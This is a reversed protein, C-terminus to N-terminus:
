KVVAIKGREQYGGAQLLVIYIGSGVPADNGSRGNWSVENYQGAPYTQNNVLTAIRDGLLNYITITVPATQPQIWTLKAEEKYNSNIQNHYIKLFSNPPVPTVTCTPSPTVTTQITMTPTVTLVPTSTSTPTVTPTPTPATSSQFQFVHNNQGLAYIEFRHDNNADGVTLAYLPVGTNNMVFTTWNANNKYRYVCGDGCASYVENFGDNDADSVSLSYFAGGGPTGITQGTWGANWSCIYVSGNQCAAYIESDGDNDGDGFALGNITGGCTFIAAAQWAIGNYRYQYIQNANASYLELSGDKNGDGAALAAPLCAPCGPIDTKLWSGNNNKYQCVTGNNGAAFIEPLGDNDIDAKTLCLIESAGDPGAGLDTKNWAPGSFQHVHNDYTAGYIEWYWDGNGDALLLRSYNTGLTSFIAVPSNWGYSFKKLQYISQDLNAVYLEQANDADADGVELGSCRGTETVGGASGIDSMTWVVPPAVPSLVTYAQKLISICGDDGTVEVDYTNPAAGTLDLTYLYRYISEETGVGSSIEPNGALVLRTIVPATFAAGSIDLQVTQGSLGYAPNVLSLRDPSWHQCFIKNQYDYNVTYISDNVIEIDGGYYCSSSDRTGDQWWQNGTWHKLRGNTGLIYYTGNVLKLSGNPAEMDTIWAVGNFHKIYSSGADSVNLYPVGGALTMSMKGSGNGASAGDQIWANGNWHKLYVSYYLSGSILETEIWAVYPIGNYVAIQPGGADGNANVNLTGGDQVWSTGNFHKVNVKLHGSSDNQCWAVWPTGNYVAINPFRANYSSDSIYSATITTWYGIYRSVFIKQTSTNWAEAWTAYPTGNYVVMRPRTGYDLADGAQIILDGGDQEWDSGNWHKVYIHANSEEWIVYPVGNYITLSQM